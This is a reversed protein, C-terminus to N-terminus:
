LNRDLYREAAATIKQEATELPPPLTCGAAGRHGGGGFVRCIESADAPPRARMSVRFNGDDKERLTIGIHV